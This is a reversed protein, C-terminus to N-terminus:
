ILSNRKNSVNIISSVSVFDNSMNAVFSGLLIDDLQLVEFGTYEVEVLISELSPAIEEPLSDKVLVPDMDDCELDLSVEFSFFVYLEVTSFPSESFTM